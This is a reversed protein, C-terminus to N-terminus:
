GIEKKRKKRVRPPPLLGSECLTWRHIEETRYLPEGRRGKRGLVTEMKVMWETEGEEVTAELRYFFAPFHFRKKPDESEAFSREAYVRLDNECFDEVSEGIKRYFETM